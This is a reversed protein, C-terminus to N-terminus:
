YDDIADWCVRVYDGKAETSHGEQPKTVVVRETAKDKKEVAGLAGLSTMYLIREEENLAKWNDAM